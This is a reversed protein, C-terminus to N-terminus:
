GGTAALTPDPRPIAEILAKTYPHQPRHYVDEVPGTEAIRGLSMVAVRDSLHEVVSLDHAIFLLALNLRSRLESLLNVDPGAGSRGFKGYASRDSDCQQM